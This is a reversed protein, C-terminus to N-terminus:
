TPRASFRRVVPLRAKIVDFEQGRFAGLLVLM